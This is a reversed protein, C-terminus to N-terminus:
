RTIIHSCVFPFASICPVVIEMVFKKKRSRLFFATISRSNRPTTGLTFERTKHSTVKLRQAVKESTEFSRIEKSRPDFLGLFM